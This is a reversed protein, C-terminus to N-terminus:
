GTLPRRSVRHGCRAQHRRCHTASQEGSIGSGAARSGMGSCGLADPAFLGRANCHIPRLSFCFQRRTHYDTVLPTGTSRVARCHPRSLSSRSHRRFHLLSTQLAPSPPTHCERGRGTLAAASRCIRLRWPPRPFGTGNQALLISHQAEPSSAQAHLGQRPARPAHPLCALLVSAQLPVLRRQFMWVSFPELRQLSRTCV